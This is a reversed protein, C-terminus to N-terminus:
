NKKGYKTFLHEYPKGGTQVNGEQTVPVRNRQETQISFNKRGLIAYLKDEIEQLSFDKMNDKLEKYDDEDLGSKEFLEEARAEHEADEIDKKFAKLSKVEGELTEYNNRMLELAGKEEATLYQAFVEVNSGLTIADNEKSYDIRYLKGNMENQAIFHDDYVKHLWFDWREGLANTEVYDNIQEWLVNRIDDHALAFKHFVKGEPNDGEPTSFEGEPENEGEPNGDGEPKQFEEEPEDQPEESPEDGQEPEEGEPNTEHNTEPEDGTEPAEEEAFAESIKAELEEETSFEEAKIGKEALQEATVGFKALIKELDVQDGEKSENNELSGYNLKFEEMNANIETNLDALSFMKEVTARQMAPQVGDGLICAGYFSFKSFVFNGDQDFSGDYDNHLEMSQGKIEDRELIGMADDFKSWMLGDVVLYEREQGDDGIKKEWRANNTEPIVGFASGLYKFKYEGDEVVLEMEHGAFDNQGIADEKVYGLIPTNKLSPLALEVAEKTFVSGNYNLGTHMLFIKVQIFRDDFQNIKQFTVPINTNTFKKEKGM